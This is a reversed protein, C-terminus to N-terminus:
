AKYRALSGGRMVKGPLQRGFVSEALHAAEILKELDVGTEIGMEECMFVLDETCINGAAGKHGAFPCGGLGACSSDYKAVGLKLAAYVNALGTGRTDHLHLALPLDPWSERVAGITREMLLPNAWGVTDALYVGKLSVGAESALSLVEGVMRVVQPIPMYGEYNCGFATMVYGWEVQVDHEAYSKLWARQEELTQEINKNTNKTSFTESATVRIAGVVDLPSAYARELGQQNLWLGTYRVGVKKRIAAALEDADAMGPVRKPNVFSVCDIQKLGTEALAEILEVKRSVPIPNPEIQFGERPGEENIAIRKPLDSM